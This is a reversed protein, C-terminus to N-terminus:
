IGLPEDWVGRVGPLVLHGGWSQRGRGDWPWRAGVVAGSRPVALRTRRRAVAGAPSCGSGAGPRAQPRPRAGRWRGPAPVAGHAPPAARCTGPCRRDRRRRGRTSRAGHPAAAAAGRRARRPGTRLRPGMITLWPTAAPRAPRAASPRAPRGRRPPAPWAPRTGPATRAAPAASPGDAAPGREAPAAPRAAPPPRSPAPRPATAPCSSAATAAPRPPPAGLRPPPAPPSHRSAPSPHLSPLSRPHGAAAGGRGSPRPRRRGATPCRAPVRSRASGATPVGPSAAPIYRTHEQGETHTNTYKCTHTQHSSRRPQLLSGAPPASHSSPLIPLFSLGSGRLGQCPNAGGIVNNPRPSSSVISVEQGPGPARGEAFLEWLQAEGAM